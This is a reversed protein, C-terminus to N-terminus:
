FPLKVGSLPDDNKPKKSGKQSAAGKSGMLEEMSPMKKYDSPVTFLSASLSQKEVKTATMTMVQKGEKNTYVTELPFLGKTKVAKIWDEVSASGPKGGGLGMFSGMGTAAWIDSKGSKGEYVWHQCDHGLITKSGSAKYFKGEFKPAKKALDGMEHTSYMKQQHMLMISKKATMDMIMSMQYKDSEMNVRVKGGKIMYESNMERDKTTMKYDIIGEFSGASVSGAGLLMTLGLAWGKWHRNM